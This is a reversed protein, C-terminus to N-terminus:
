EDYSDDKYPLRKKLIHRPEKVEEIKEQKKIIDSNIFKEYMENYTNALFIRLLHYFCDHREIYQWFQSVIEPTMYHQELLMKQEANFDNFLSTYKPNSTFYKDIQYLRALNGQWLKRKIIDELPIYTDQMKINSFLSRIKKNNLEIWINNLAIDYPITELNYKLTELKLKKLINKRNKLFYEKENQYNFTERDLGELSDSKYLFFVVTPEMSIVNINLVLSAKEKM